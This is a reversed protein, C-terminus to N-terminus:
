ATGSVGSRYSGAQQRDSTDTQCRHLRIARNIALLSAGAFLLAVGITGRESALGSPPYRQRTICGVCRGRKVGSRYSGAQQRDSTDAQCRHLRIARNIALLSAGVFFLAVGITGRESAPGSPLYRQRAMCGVCYWQRRVQLLWSAPSGLHRDPMPTAPYSPQDGALQSRRLAASRRYNRTRVCSRVTSLAPANHVRRVQGAQRRVQLLWSAPSGLHRGPMPTAPYSPQDGALQSRRLVASRRYNRTRVCSRVASLAPAGHVRRLVM